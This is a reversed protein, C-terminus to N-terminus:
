VVWTDLFCAQFRDPDAEAAEMIAQMFRRYHYGQPRIPRGCVSCTPVRHAHARRAIHRCGALLGSEKRVARAESCTGLTLGDAGVM